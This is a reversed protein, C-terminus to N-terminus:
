YIRPRDFCSDIDGNLFETLNNPQVVHISRGQGPSVHTINSTLVRSEDEVTDDSTCFGIDRLIMFKNRWAFSPSPPAALSAATSAPSLGASAIRLKADYHYGAPVRPSGTAQFGPRLLRPLGLPCQAGCTQDARHPSCVPPGYRFRVFWDDFALEAHLQNSRANPTALSKEGKDSPWHRHPLVPTCTDPSGASASPPLGPFYLLSLGSPTPLLCSSQQM